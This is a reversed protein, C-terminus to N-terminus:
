ITVRRIATVIAAALTVFVVNAFLQSLCLNWLYLSLAYILILLIEIRLVSWFQLFLLRLSVIFLSGTCNNSCGNSIIILQFALITMLQCSNPYKIKDIMHLDCMVFCFTNFTIDHNFLIQCTVVIAIKRKTNVAKKKKGVVSKKLKFIKKQKYTSVIIHINSKSFIIQTNDMSDDYCINILDCYNKAPNNQM